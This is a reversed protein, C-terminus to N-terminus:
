GHKMVKHWDPRGRRIVRDLAEAKEPLRDPSQSATFEAAKSRSLGPVKLDGAEVAKMFRYQAKSAAPM